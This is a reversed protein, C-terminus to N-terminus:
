RTTALARVQGLLLSLLVLLQHVRDDLLLVLEGLVEGLFLRLQAELLRIQLTNGFHRHISETTLALVEDDGHLVGVHDGNQVVAVHLVRAADDLGSEVATPAGLIQGEQLVRHLKALLRRHQQAVRVERRVLQLRLHRGLRLVHLLEQRVKAHLQRRTPLLLHLLQLVQLTRRTSLTRHLRPVKTIVHRQQLLLLIVHVLRRDLLVERRLVHHLLHHM